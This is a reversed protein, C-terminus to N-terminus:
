MTVKPQAQIARKESNKVIGILYGCMWQGEADYMKDGDLSWFYTAVKGNGDANVLTGGKKVLCEEVDIAAMFKASNTETSVYRMVVFIGTAKETGKNYGRIDISDVDAVLRVGDSSDTVMKWTEAHATTALLLASVLLVKRLM